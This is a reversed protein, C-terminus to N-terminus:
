RDGESDSGTGPNRGPDTDADEATSPDAGSDDAAGASPRPEQGLQEDWTDVVLRGRDRTVPVTMRVWHSDLSKWGRATPAPAVAPVGAVELTGSPSPEGTPGVQRYPTVRVRVDVMVRGEGDPRVGGPLSFEARQRGRGSWGLLAADGDVDSPLYQALVDGRRRPNDQDWSLYDAAFAGALSSAEGPEPAEVPDSWTGSGPEAQEDAPRGTAPEPDPEATPPTGTRAAAQRRHATAPRHGPRRRGDAPGTPTPRPEPLEVAAPRSAPSAGDPRARDADQPDDDVTAVSRTEVDPQFRQGGIPHTLLPLWDTEARGPGNAARDPTHDSTPGPGAPRATEPRPTEPRPTEPVSTEPLSTEPRPATPAPAPFRTAPEAISRRTHGGTDPGAFPESVPWGTSRQGLIPDVPDTGGDSYAPWGGFPDHAALPPAEGTGRQDLDDEAPWWPIDAPAPSAERRRRFM